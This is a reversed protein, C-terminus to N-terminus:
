ALMTPLTTVAAVVATRAVSGTRALALWPFVVVFAANGILALAEAGLFAPLVARSPIM